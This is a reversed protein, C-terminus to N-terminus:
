KKPESRPRGPACFVESLRRLQEQSPRAFFPDKVYCLMFAMATVDGETSNEYVSELQYGHDAYVKIGQVSSYHDVRALGTGNPTPEAEARFVVQGTTLDRLELSRAYSHLHVAIYHITTDFPFVRGLRTQRVERGPKVVWHATHETGSEDTFTRQGGADPACSIQHEPAPRAQPDAVEVRIGFDILTLPQMSQELESDRVYDTTVAHRVEEGVWDAHTNMVQSQLMLTETSAVPIGFGPPFDIRSQGQSLTFIRKGMRTLPIDNNREELENFSLTNHCMFEQSRPTRGDPGVMAASYGTIWVLEPNGAELKISQDTDTPGMMSPYIDEVLSIPTVYEFTSSRTRDPLWYLVAIGGLFLFLIPLSKKM